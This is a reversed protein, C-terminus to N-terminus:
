STRVEPSVCEPDPLRAEHLCDQYFRKMQPSRLITDMIASQVWDSMVSGSSDPQAPDTIGALHMLAIAIGQAEEMEELEAPTLKEWQLITRPLKM